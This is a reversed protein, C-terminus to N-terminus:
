PHNVVIQPYPSPIERVSNQTAFSAAFLVLGVLAPLAGAPKKVGLHALASLLLHYFIGAYALDSLFISYRSVIAIVALVKLVILLPHLYVPYGFDALTQRVWGAKVVYLTASTVYLLALLATSIWYILIETM